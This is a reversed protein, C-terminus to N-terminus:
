ALLAARAHDKSRDLALLLARLEERAPVFVTARGVTIPKRTAFAVPHWADGTRLEFRAMFEIPLPAGRWTLFLASRFRPDAGGPAAPLSLTKALRRADDEGLLVDVDHVPKQVGHLLAAAGAIIWWPEHTDALLDAVRALTEALAANLPAGRGARRGM